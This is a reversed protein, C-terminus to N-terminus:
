LRVKCCFRANIFRWLMQGGSVCFVFASGVCIPAAIWLMDIRTWGELYLKFVALASLTLTFASAILRDKVTAKEDSFM